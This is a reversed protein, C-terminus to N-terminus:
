VQHSSKFRSWWIEIDYLCLAFPLAVPEETLSNWKLASNKETNEPYTEIENINCNWLPSDTNKPTRWVSKTLKQNSLQYLIAVHPDWKTACFLNGRPKVWKKDRSAFLWLIKSESWELTSVHNPESLSTYQQSVYSIIIISGLEWFNRQTTQRWTITHKWIKLSM